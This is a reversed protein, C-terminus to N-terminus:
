EARSGETMATREEIQVNTGAECDAVSPPAAAPTVLKSVVVLRQPAPGLYYAPDCTVLTLRNDSTPAASQLTLQAQRNQVGRGRLHLSRGDREIMIPDGPSLNMINRFFTDRHASVVANGPEGARRHRDHTRARDDVFVSRHGGRDGRFPRISPISIRTLGSYDCACHTSGACSQIRQQERWLAQLQRQEFLM